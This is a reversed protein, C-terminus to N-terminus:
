GAKAIAFDLEYGDVDTTALETEDGGATEWAVTLTEGAIWDRHSALVSELEPHARYRVRIRDAYDLGADKRASQIRNVLERARGEAVLEPTLQTDLVVLLERDGATAMGEKEVLRVEVDASGLDISEGGVDISFRGERELAEALADGDAAALAAQVAKMKPGLRKGLVRFNPKVEHRVFDSRREAWRLEKVNVEDLILERVREVHGKVDIGFVEAAFVLVMSPLPQRTKLNHSSRAARALGVIRGALSMAQALREAEMRGVDSLQSLWDRKKPWEELHVSAPATASQSRVLHEHLKEAVFPTFPALLRALTTLVEYLTQYAAEKGPDGGEVASWFRHRSRRIYWNTLDDVFSELTRAAPAISYGELHLNVLEITRDLRVLIWSDLDQRERLHIKEKENPRWGDLNAYITFFSLANWLPLLFGQAAERVLRASFRSTQEPDTVYFYWRLADAGTEDVVTMPDVVNGLRKSMKRGQEDTVHGLVICNRFAVSDFLAVALVHLTYFWGRTQDVAESIFDAPVFESPLLRLERPAGDHVLRHHQAFPMSGSDFWADLVDEVRRFVGRRGLARCHFCDWTLEDIAPRHPDFQERDYLDAPAKRGALDFLEQYSGVIEIAPCLDCKWIPLPTGWYRRRSLAWDVVGELWNGFRGSGIAEPRWTIDDRNKAVLEDRIATTRVFWSETAYQLLPTDCRWCFPYSHRHSETHLLLGRERLDRVVEKDADKFWLGALRELGAREAVKGNPEITRFLPLGNDLGTRHDDAGFAPATHVLGTGDTATVYDAVVVPWGAEDSPAPDFTQTTAPADAPATRYPRDYRLGLLDRGRFRAVAPLDRLDLRERQGERAVECPIAAEIADAFLIRSDPRDPHEVVRYLLDPHVAMGAHGPMTWPTTTWALLHLGPPTSYGAGDESRLNQGPRVPFLVWISPDDVEKYNQAVEHSSLTTGCRACYPQSKHGEYLLGKEHLRRIASWVSEVYENSYTFYADDLDIWYGFRETMARWQREYTSVSDLCARNFRAISAARDGPVLQEIDKKGALGLRKEVEIEVALGHTDWGAKRAVHRGRMTQYRPFLDKAVRTLVHGVHPTNNATPPGEFFVFPAGEATAELTREFIKRESWDALVERELEPFPYGTPVPPFKEATM